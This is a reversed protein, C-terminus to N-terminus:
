HFLLDWLIDIAGWGRQGKRLSYPSYRIQVPVEVVRAKARAILVLLESAHAMRTQRIRIKEALRRHLCRFGNHADGTSLGLAAASGWTALKLLIKRDLPIGANAVLFRNGLAADAIGSWVPRGLAEIDEPRMQGDADYTIISEAGQALAYDIGTQLAAGQGLNTRHTLLHVPFKRALSATADTSGDDVVVLPLGLPVLSSLVEAIVASENYAPLIIWCTKPPPTM